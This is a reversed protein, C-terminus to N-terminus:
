GLPDTHFSSEELAEPQFILCSSPLLPPGEWGFFQEDRNTRSFCPSLHAFITERKRGDEQKIKQTATTSYLTSRDTAAPPPLRQALARFDADTYHAAARRLAPFLSAPDWDGIQQHPWKADGLAYPALYLLAARIAPAKHGRPVHSWLDVGVRDGVTALETLGDINMVSYSFSRTRALELPQRGDGDIQAAIRKAKSEELVRKANETADVFLSYVAVQLDYYTGHNNKAKSEDVGNASERMWKLFTGFWDRLARGDDASLAGASELLGISDVVRTLGRTEILGIGRGTNIGPIFQAYTLSPNMRTAADLFWARLLQVAKAGYHEGGGLYAALALTNVAGAMRDLATHDPFKALEPNREGDRRIYPLGNSKSPDPWWYPAQTMYDHKDGSPPIAAKDVVALRRSDLAKDADARLASWAAMVAPDGKAIATRAAQLRQADLVFVRPPADALSQATLVCGVLVLFQM